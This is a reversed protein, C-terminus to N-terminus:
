TFLNVALRAHHFFSQLLDPRQRLRTFGRDVQQGLEEVSAPTANRLRQKVNGHSAEEPNLDPVYPPLWAGYLDLDAAIFQRVRKDRHAILRDWVLILLGPLQRRFHRLALLGDERRVARRFRRKFRKGSVTLAVVMSLTRRQSVRRLVLTKSQTGLDHRDQQL